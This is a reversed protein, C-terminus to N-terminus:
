REREQEASVEGPGQESESVEEYWAIGVGVGGGGLRSGDTWVMEPNREQITAEEMAARIMNEKEEEKGLQPVEM